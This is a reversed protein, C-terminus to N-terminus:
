RHHYRDLAYRDIRLQKIGSAHTPAKCSSHAPGRDAFKHRRHLLKPELGCSRDSWISACISFTNREAYVALFKRRHPRFPILIIQQRGVYTVPDFLVANPLMREM